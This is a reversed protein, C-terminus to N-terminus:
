AFSVNGSLEWGAPLTLDGRRIAHWQEPTVDAVFLHIGHFGTGELDVRYNFPVVRNPDDVNALRNVELLRLENEPAGAPLYVVEIIGPDIGMHQIAIDGALERLRSTPSPRPPTTTTTSSVERRLRRSRERRAKELVDMWEEDDLAALEQVLQEQDVM